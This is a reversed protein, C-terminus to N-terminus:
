RQYMVSQSISLDVDPVSKAIGRGGSVTITM